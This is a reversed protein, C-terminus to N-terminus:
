NMEGIDFLKRIMREFLWSRLAARLRPLWTADKGIRYRLGPSKSEIVELVTKAVLEPAPAQREFRQLAALARGPWHGYHSLRDAPERRNATLNTNISGPEIL